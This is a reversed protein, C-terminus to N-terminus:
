DEEGGKEKPSKVIFKSLFNAIVWCPIWGFWLAVFGANTDVVNAAAIISIFWLPYHIFRRVTKEKKHQEERDKSWKLLAQHEEKERAERKASM